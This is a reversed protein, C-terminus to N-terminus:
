FLLEFGATQFHGDNSFARRLGLRRMAAFSLQDVLSASGPHGKRFGTWAQQWDEATPFILAGETDLRDGLDSVLIRIESRSFANGCEALIYTTTFLGVLPPFTAFARAATKHWQDRRNWLAILGVSDLFIGNM